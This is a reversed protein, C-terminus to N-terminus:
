RKETARLRQTLIHALEHRKASRIKEGSSKDTFRWSVDSLRTGHTLRETKGIPKGRWETVGSRKFVLSM